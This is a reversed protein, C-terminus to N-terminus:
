SLFYFFVAGFWKRIAGENFAVAGAVPPSPTLVHGVALLTRSARRLIFWKM